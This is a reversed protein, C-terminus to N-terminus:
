EKLTAVPRGTEVTIDPQVLDATPRGTEKVHAKEFIQPWGGLKQSLEIGGSVSELKEDNLAANRLKEEKLAEKKTNEAM